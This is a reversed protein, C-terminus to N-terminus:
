KVSRATMIVDHNHRRGCRKEVPMQSPLPVNQGGM